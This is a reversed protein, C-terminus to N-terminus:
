PHVCTTGSVRRACVMEELNEQQKEAKELLSEQYKKRKLFLLAKQKNGGALAERAHQTERVV